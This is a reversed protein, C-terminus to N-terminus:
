APILCQLDPPLVLDFAERVVNLDQALLEFRELLLYQLVTRQLVLLQLQEPHRLLRPLLRALEGALQVCELPLHVPRLLLNASECKLM